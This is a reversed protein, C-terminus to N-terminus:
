STQPKKRIKDVVEQNGFVSKLQNSLIKDFSIRYQKWLFYQATDEFYLYVEDNGPHKAFLKAAIKLRVDKKSRVKIYVSVNKQPERNEKGYNQGWFEEARQLLVFSDAIFQLQGRDNKRLTGSVFLPLEERIMPEFHSFVTSFAIVEIRDYGDDLVAFAMKDGKKTRTVKLSSLFGLMLYKKGIGSESMGHLEGIGTLDSPLKGHDIADLPHGSICFGIARKEYEAMKQPDPMPLSRWAVSENQLQEGFLSLQGAIESRRGGHQQMLEDCVALMEDRNHATFSDFGGALILSQVAQKSCEKKAMRRCFDEFSAFAGNQMRESEIRQALTRGIGKIARMGFRIAGDEATFDANAFNVDPLLLSIGMRRCISTYGSLKGTSEGFANMLAAYFQAPYFRRCYATQYTILAYAAAHSKNFAYSAFAAMQDFIKAATDKDIGNEECGSLFAEHEKEMVDAKKKAMARRVVDARGYSYGALERCIRM